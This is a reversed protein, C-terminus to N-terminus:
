CDAVAEAENACPVYYSRNPCTGIHLIKENEFYNELIM